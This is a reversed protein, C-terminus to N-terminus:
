FRIIADIYIRSDLLDHRQTAPFEYAVGFEYNGSPKWRSGVALTVIDNGAVNGSGLNFLDGGEFNFGPFNHGSSSWHFWNLSLTGFIRDILEVDWQSSLWGMQTQLNTDMPVRYGAGILWHSNVPLNLKTGATTFFHMQSGFGQFVRGAGIPAEVTGGVSWLRQREPDRVLNYKLGGALDVWGQQTLGPVGRGNMWLYGDKTAILSLRDTLACRFQVAAFQAEGGNTFAPNDNPIWHNVFHGRIESLTRPDEFLLVNTQPSVFGDFGHDTSRIFGRRRQSRGVDQVPCSRDQLDCTCVDDLANGGAGAFYDADDYFRIASETHSTDLEFARGSVAGTMLVACFGFAHLGLRGNFGNM